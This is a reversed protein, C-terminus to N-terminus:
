FLWTRAKGHPNAAPEPGGDKCSPRFARSPPGDKPDKRDGPARRVEARSFGEIGYVDPGCPNGITRQCVGPCGFCRSEIEGSEGLGYGKDRMASVFREAAGPGYGHPTGHGAGPLLGEAQHRFPAPEFRPAGPSNVSHSRFSAPLGCRQMASPSPPAKKTRDPIGRFFQCPM